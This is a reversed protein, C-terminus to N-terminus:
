YKCINFNLKLYQFTSRVLMYLLSITECLMYKRLIVYITLKEISFVSNGANSIYRLIDVYPPLMAVDNESALVRIINSVMDWM